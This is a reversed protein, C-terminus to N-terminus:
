IDYYLAFEWPHPRLRIEDVERARKYSVWDAILDETFVGGALLFEHDAELADLSEELSGPVSPVQALEEPPLDYLDKDVPAGPDMKNAIGDLGAMLMAAFALYPNASPDPCRFELRKAEPKRSYLPIRVAASRNRQSYVLNVPAEYGPVLRRYSNTTPAAFALMAGAHHLLGGIYYRAMDSLGAYGSEDYFLPKGDLWLSQHTHMGSGNDQFIPKPMFTVTKGHAWATNKVIYKFMTVHDAMKLLTDYRIDIEAQGATGVEHHHLEAPVGAALLRKTMESRLDQYHDTPPVPFYGEKYRPKYALNGGPEDTGSNWFGEISDIEHFASFQNQDFRASDFIYFEAEPGWYSTDAIGTGTLYEEAKRAVLRPDKAYAQGTVPDKVFCYLLLTKLERFPDDVATDPDPVLVMDSEQIEQFGRISSGDFGYGEDFGDESLETAPITFHQVQGPLDCFRLDVFEYGGEKVMKLVDSPSAM